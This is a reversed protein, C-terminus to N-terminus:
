SKAAATASSAAAQESEKAAAASDKCEAVAQKAQQAYAYAEYNIQGVIESGSDTVTGVIRIM